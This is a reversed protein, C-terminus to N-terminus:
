FAFKLKQLDGKDDSLGIMLSIISKQFKTASAFTQLNQLIEQQDEKALIETQQIDFTKMWAHDLLQKASWRENVDRACAKM